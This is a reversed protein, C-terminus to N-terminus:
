GFKILTSRPLLTPISKNQKSFPNRMNAFGVPNPLENSINSTSDNTQNIAKDAFDTIGEVVSGVTSGAGPIFRDVIPAVFPVVKKV